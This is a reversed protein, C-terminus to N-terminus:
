PQGVAAVRLRVRLEDLDEMVLGRHGGAQEYLWLAQRFLYGETEVMGFGKKPEYWFGAGVTCIPEKAAILNM